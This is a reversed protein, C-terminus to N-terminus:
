LWSRGCLGLSFGGGALFLLGRGRRGRGGERIFGRLCVFGAVHAAVGRLSGEEVAHVVASGCAGIVIDGQVV